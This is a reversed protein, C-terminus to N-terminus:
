DYDHMDGKNFPLYVRWTEEVRKFDKSSLGPIAYEFGYGKKPLANNRFRKPMRSVRMYKKALDYLAGVQREIRNIKALHYLQSWNTIKQFLALSALITRLSGTKIAFVLTEEMTPEKGYIKYTFPTSIKVKSHKNIIDYYSTGKLKNEFSINYVRTNDSLKRTKVYGEKRLRYLYYITKDKDIKLITRASKLTQVGELKRLLIRTEM